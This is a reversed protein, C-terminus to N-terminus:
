SLSKEMLIFVMPHEYFSGKNEKVVKFGEKEYFSINSNGKYVSLSITQPQTFKSIGTLLLQKGIRKGQHDPHVYLSELYVDKSTLDGSFFAYGTIEGNIEAVLNLSSSFRKKMKDESYADKLVREQIEDPIFTSYTDKWTHEAIKRVSEIDTFNM